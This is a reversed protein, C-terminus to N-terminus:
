SFAATRLWVLRDSSFMPCAAIMEMPRVTTIYMAARPMMFPVMVMPSKTSTLM